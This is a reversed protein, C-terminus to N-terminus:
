QTQLSFEHLVYPRVGCTNWNAQGDPGCYRLQQREIEHLGAQVGFGAGIMEACGTICASLFLVGLRMPILYNM